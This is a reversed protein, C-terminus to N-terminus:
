RYCALNKFIAASEIKAILLNILIIKEKQKKAQERLTFLKWWHSMLKISICNHKKIAM